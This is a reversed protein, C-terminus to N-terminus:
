NIINEYHEFAEPKHDEGLVICIADIRYAGKYKQHAVYAKANWLLKRQKKYNITEEPIGFRANSKTRVEIFVLQGGKKAVIDIETYKTKYNQELIEYGKKELYEKALAEGLRGIEGRTSEIM